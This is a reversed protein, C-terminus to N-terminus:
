RMTLRRHGDFTQRVLLACRRHDGIEYREAARPKRDRVEAFRARRRCRASSDYLKAHM